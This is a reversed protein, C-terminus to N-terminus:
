DLRRKKAKTVGLYIGYGGLGLAAAGLLSFLVISIVISIPMKDTRKSIDPEYNANRKPIFNVIEGEARLYVGTTAFQDFSVTSQVATGTMKVLSSGSVKRHIYQCEYYSSDIQYPQHCKILLQAKVGFNKLQKEKGLDLEACLSYDTNFPNFESVQAYAEGNSKTGTLVCNAVITEYLPRDTHQVMLYDIGRNVPDKIWNLDLEILFCDSVDSARLVRVVSEMYWPTNAANCKDVKAAYSALETTYKSLDLEPAEVAADTTATLNANPVTPMTFGSMLCLIMICGTLLLFVKKM